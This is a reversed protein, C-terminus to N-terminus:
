LASRLQDIKSQIDSLELSCISTGILIGHCLNKINTIDQSSEVGSLALKIINDPIKHFLENFIVRDIKLTDLDRCNIGIIKPNCDLAIKLEGQNVVEILCEMGLSQAFNQLEIIKERDKLVKVILLVASAGSIRAQYIQKKDIIFDKCLIPIETVKAVEAIDKFNGGFFKQDTLVSITDVKAIDYQKAIQDTSFQSITGKSPSKKKIEAIIAFNNEKKLADSFSKIPPFTKLDLVDPINSLQLIEQQKNSMIENLIGKKEFLKPFIEKGVGYQLERSGRSIQSMSINLKKAIERQTTGNILERVLHCRMELTELEQPTFLAEFLKEVDEQSLSKIKKILETILIKNM